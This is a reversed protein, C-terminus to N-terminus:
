HEASGPWRIVKQWALQSRDRAVRLRSGLRLVLRCHRLASYHGAALTCSYANKQGSCSAQSAPAPFNAIQNLKRNAYVQPKTALIALSDDIKARCTSRELYSFLGRKVKVRRERSRVNRRDSQRIPGKCRREQCKRGKAEKSSHGWFHPRKKQPSRRQGNFTNQPSQSGFVFRKRDTLCGSVSVTLM